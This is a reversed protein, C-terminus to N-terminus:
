RRAAEVYPMVDDTRHCEGVPQLDQYDGRLAKLAQREQEIEGRTRVGRRRFIAIPPCWGQLAHQLLFGTVVVPIALLSKKWTLGLLLSTLGITAANAELTREIDWEADLEELRREILEPCACSYMRVRDEIDQQIQQNIEDPTNEQVRTKSKPLM